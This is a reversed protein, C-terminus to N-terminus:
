QEVGKMRLMQRAHTINGTPNRPDNFRALLTGIVSEFGLSLLPALFGYSHYIVYSHYIGTRRKRNNGHYLIGSVFKHV